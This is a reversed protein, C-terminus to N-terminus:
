VFTDLDPPRLDIPGSLGTEAKNLAYTKLQCMACKAPATSRDSGSYVPCQTLRVPALPCPRNLENAFAVFHFSHAVAFASAQRLFATSHWRAGERGWVGVDPLHVQLQRLLAFLQRIVRDCNFTM